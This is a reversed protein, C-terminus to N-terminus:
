RTLAEGAGRLFQGSMAVAPGSSDAGEVFACFAIDHVIGAFWGHAPGSGIEATGTKGGLNEIDNLSSASGNTVAERMMTRLAAVTEAPLPAPTQDATTREDPILNPMIM